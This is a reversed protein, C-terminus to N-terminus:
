HAAVGYSLYSSASWIHQKYNPARVPIFTVLFINSGLLTGVLIYLKYQAWIKNLIFIDWV